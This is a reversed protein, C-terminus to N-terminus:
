DRRTRSAGASIALRGAVERALAAAPRGAAAVTLPAPAASAGHAGLAEAAAVAIRHADARATARFRPPLVLRIRRIRM